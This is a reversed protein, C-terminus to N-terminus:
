YKDEEKILIKIVELDALHDQGFSNEKEEWYFCDIGGLEDILDNFSEQDGEIEKVRKDIYDGWKNWVEYSWEEYGFTWCGLGFCEGDLTKIELEIEYGHDEGGKDWFISLIGEPFRYKRIRSM